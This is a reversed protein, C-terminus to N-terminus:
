KPAKRYLYIAVFSFFINPLWAALLPPLDGKISFTTSFKDSVIFVAAIIIGIAMHLGSGGRTRRGAIVAGILTLLLVTFPTAVRRHLEVKLPNLGETARMEENEIFSALEPTTLNDKLYEDKRLEEPKINLDIHMEQIRSIREDMQSIHREIVSVLKWKNVSTDWYIREARLNYIVEHDMVKDMFFSYATLTSTDYNRMGMYSISDVRRYVNNFSIGSNNHDIYTSQFRSRISNGKPLVYRAAFFLIIAFFLGGLLYPRLWRNYSTGSALIAIVESRAAMKSTFFIVAIFVFLPYLMGWIWPIFGIYYRMFIQRSSMGSKVFDDTKESIDIAVALTTMIFMCFFFTIFFKKLIYWDIKTIM